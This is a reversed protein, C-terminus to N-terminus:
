ALGRGSWQGGWGEPARGAPGASQRLGVEGDEHIRQGGEEEGPDADGEGEWLTAFGVCNLLSFPFYSCIERIAHACDNWFAFAAWGFSGFNTRGM